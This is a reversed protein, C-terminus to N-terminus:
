SISKKLSFIAPIAIIVACLLACTYVKPSNTIPIDMNLRLQFAMFAVSLVASLGKLAFYIGPKMGLGRLVALNQAGICAGGFGTMASLLLLRATREMYISSVLASGSPLDLLCLWINGFGNGCLRSLMCAVGSFLAMYGCVTIISFVAARVPSDATLESEASVTEKRDSWANRLLLLLALQAFVQSCLLLVGDGASRLMASGVGAVLFAPSLGCACAVIRFLQGRNLGSESAIRLAAQAGAPSGALMGIIVAPAAAGPLNFIKGMFRGMMREWVEISERCTLLPLLAMFPFLAPAVSYYWAHMAKQVGELMAEPWRMLALMLLIGTLWKIRRRLMFFGGEALM